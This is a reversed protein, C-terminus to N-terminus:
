WGSVSGTRWASSESFSDAHRGARSRSPSSRSPAHTASSVPVTLRSPQGCPVRSIQRRSRGCGPACSDKVSRSPWRKWHKMVSWVSGVDGRELDQVALVSLDFVADLGQLGGARAVQREVGEL